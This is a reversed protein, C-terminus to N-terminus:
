FIRLQQVRGACGNTEVPQCDRGRQVDANDVRQRVWGFHFSNLLNSRISWDLGITAADGRTGVSDVLPTGSQTLDVQGPNASPVAIERYWAYRGFFHLNQTFNQDLRVNFADDQIPAPTNFLYGSVNQCSLSTTCGVADASSPDNPLPKILNLLAAVTPSM